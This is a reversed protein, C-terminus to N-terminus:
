TMPTSAEVKVIQDAGLGGSGSLSAFDIGSPGTAEAEGLGFSKALESGMAQDFDFDNLLGEQVPDFSAALDSPPAPPPSHSPSAPSLTVACPPLRETGADGRRLIGMLLEPLLRSWRGEDEAEARRDEERAEEPAVEPSVKAENGGGIGAPARSCSPLWSSSRRWLAM